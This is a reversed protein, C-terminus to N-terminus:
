SLRTRLTSALFVAISMNWWAEYGGFSYRLPKDMLSLTIHQPPQGELIGILSAFMISWLLLAISNHVNLETQAAYDLCTWNAMSADWTIAHHDDLKLESAFNSDVFELAPHSSAMSAAFPISLISMHMRTLTYTMYCVNDVEKCSDIGGPRFGIFVLSNKDKLIELHMEFNPLSLSLMDDILCVYVIDRKLNNDLWHIDVEPKFYELIGIFDLQPNKGFLHLAGTNTDIENALEFEGPRFGIFVELPLEMTAQRLEEVVSDKCNNSELCNSFNAFLAEIPFKRDFEGDSEVNGRANKLEPKVDTEAKDQDISVEESEIPEDEESGEELSAAYAEAFEKIALQIRDFIQDFTEKTSQTVIPPQSFKIDLWCCGDYIPRGQLSTRAMVVSHYQQFQILAQFDIAEPLISIKEVMGYPSFIQNLVDSTIPYLVHSVKVLLTGNSEDM